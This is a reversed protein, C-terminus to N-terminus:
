QVEAALEAFAQASIGEAASVAYTYAGNTWTALNVVGEENSQLTIENEGITETASLEYINYDGSIDEDGAAKRISVSADENSYRVELLASADEDGALVQYTVEDYGELAEPATLEFGAAQTAEELSTYEAWPNPIQVNDTIVLPETTDAAPETDATKTSCAALSLLLTATMAIAFLKKM